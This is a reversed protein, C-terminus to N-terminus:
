RLLEQLSALPMLVLGRDIADLGTHFIGAVTYLDNGTSGDAAPTLLVIESGVEVGLLTALDVGIVVAKPMGDSLYSGKVMRAQLVTIKKELEPVVGLLQAGASQHTASVLGYGYV